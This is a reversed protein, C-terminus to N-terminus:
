SEGRVISRLAPYDHIILTKANISLYGLERWQQLPKSISARTLGSYRALEEQSFKYSVVIDGEIKDGLSGAIFLLTSALRVEASTNLHLAFAQSILKMNKSILIGYQQSLGSDEFYAEVFIHKPIQLIECDIKAMARAYIPDDDFLEYDGFFVGPIAFGCFLMKERSPALDFEILGKVVIYAFSIVDGADYLISGKSYTKLKANEHLKKLTEDSSNEFMVCSKIHPMWKM